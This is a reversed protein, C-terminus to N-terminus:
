IDDLTVRIGQQTLARILQGETLTKAVRLKDDVVHIINYSNYSLRRLIKRAPTTKHATIVTTRNMDMDKLKDEFDLMERLALKSINKQETCLNCLLFVGILIFSFNFRRTLLLYVSLILLLLIPIRSMKVASNYAYVAGAKLTLVARLVRGGDLPLAPIFNVLAMATNCYFFYSLRESNLNYARCIFHTVFAVIINFLPGSLAVAIEHLPNKIISSKLRACVGFPLIEMHSIGVGLCRATAIHTMEHFFACIYSLAFASFYGGLISAALVPFFLINIRFFPTIKLTLPEKSM